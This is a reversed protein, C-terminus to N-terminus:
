LSVTILCPNEGERERGGRRGAKNSSSTCNKALGSLSSSIANRPPPPPPVPIGRPFKLLRESRQFQWSFFSYIFSLSATTHCSRAWIAWFEGNMWKNEEEKWGTQHMDCPPRFLPSFRKRANKVVERGGGGGKNNGGRVTAAAAAAAASAAM